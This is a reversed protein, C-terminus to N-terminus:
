HLCFSPPFIQTVVDCCCLPLAIRKYGHERQRACEEALSGEEEQGGKRWSREAGPWITHRLGRPALPPSPPPRLPLPNPLTRPFPCFNGPVGGM